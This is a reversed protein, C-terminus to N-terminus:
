LGKLQFFKKYERWMERVTEKIYELDKPRGFVFRGFGFIVWVVMTRLALNIFLGCLGPYGFHKRFYSLKSACKWRETERPVQNSSKNGHHIVEIEPTYWVAGGGKKIRYCLDIEDYYMFFREDMPGIRELISRRVFLCAGYPVDIIVTKDHPWWAMRYYGFFPSRPFFWDLYLSEMLDTFLSPFHRCSTQLSGDRFILKCGLASADAHVEMFGIMKRLAGELLETDPNLFLIYRGAARKFAINNARAFGLNEKNQILIVQPFDRKVMEASGDASGNDVVFVEFSVDSSHRYISSLCGRLFDKVNWNVVIISIDIAM